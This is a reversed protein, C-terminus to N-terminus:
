SRRTILSLLRTKALLPRLLGDVNRYVSYNFGALAGSGSLEAELYLTEEPSWREKSVDRGTSLNITKFGSEICHKIGEAVTTTMVSYKSYATDYGSYYFYVSDGSILGIRM